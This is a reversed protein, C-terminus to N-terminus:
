GGLPADLDGPDVASLPTSDFRFQYTVVDNMTGAGRTIHIEYLVDDGFSNFNPGGAPEEMPNYAAVIYVKETQRDVWAWLDTSDAVPDHSIAPAERHSSAWAPSALVAAAAGALAFPVLNRKTM